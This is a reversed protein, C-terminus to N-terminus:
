PTPKPPEHIYPLQQVFAQANFAPLAPGDMRPRQRVLWLQEYEALGHETLKTEYGRWLLADGLVDIVVPDVLYNEPTIRTGQHVYLTARRLSRRLNNNSGSEHAMRLEGIVPKPWDKPALRVGARRLEIIECFVTQKYLM